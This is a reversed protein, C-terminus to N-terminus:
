ALRNWTCRLLQVSCASFFVDNVPSVGEDIVVCWIIVGEVYQVVVINSKWENM